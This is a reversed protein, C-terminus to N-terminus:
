SLLAETEKIRAQLYEASCGMQPKGTEIAKNLLIKLEKIDQKILAIAATDM